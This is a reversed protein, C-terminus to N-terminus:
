CNFITYLSSMSLLQDKNVTENYLLFDMQECKKCFKLYPIDHKECLKYGKKINIMKDLKHDNCYLLNKENSYNFSAVKKCNNIIFYKKYKFIEGEPTM